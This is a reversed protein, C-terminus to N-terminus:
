KILYEYIEKQEPTVSGRSDLIHKYTISTINKFGEEFNSFMLERAKQIGEFKRGDALKDAAYILKDFLTLEKELSTHVKIAHLIEDDDLKYEDKIWYYASLSHLEYDALSNTNVGKTELFDRHWEKTMNKTIDHFAGAFWARKPDLNLHKAYQAALSGVSISHKHRKADVMNVLIDTVYLKHRSIYKVIEPESNSLYGKRFLSSSFDFLENKLLKANYRKINEKSFPEGRKFVVIKTSNSIEDISKWKNLKYLNDSGIILFLEDNPFQQKFYRITDITYSTGKRNVEFLSVESKEPKVLNIMNIRDEVSVYKNKTKFPSKFAPVFFFKDLELEKIAYEAIQTHGKHIPNFSGGYIGIKM